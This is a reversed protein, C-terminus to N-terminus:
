FLWYFNSLSKITKKDSHVEKLANTLTTELCDMNEFYSNGFYNQRIHEWLHEVPNLEPSYPPQHIIQINDILEVTHRGHWSAQDMAMVIRYDKYFKSLENLYLTMSEANVEPLILSFSSGSKPAIASYAYTYQREFQKKLQPRFGKPSWCNYIDSIRGFRGEDQFLVIVPRDDLPNFKETAADM